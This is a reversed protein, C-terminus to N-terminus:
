YVFQCNFFKKPTPKEALNPSVNYSTTTQLSDAMDLRSILSCFGSSRLSFNTAFSKNAPSMAMQGVSVNYPNTHVSELLDPMSFIQLSTPLFGSFAFRDMM